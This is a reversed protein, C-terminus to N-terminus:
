AALAGAAAAGALVLAPVLAPAVGLVAVVALASVALTEGAAAGGEPDVFEVVDTAEASVPLPGAAESM